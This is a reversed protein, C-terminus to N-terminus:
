YSPCDTDASPQPNESLSENNLLSHPKRTTSKVNNLRDSHGVSTEVKSQAPNLSDGRPVQPTSM